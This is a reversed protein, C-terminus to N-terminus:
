PTDGAAPTLDRTQLWTWFEKWSEETVPGDPLPGREQVYAQVVEPRAAAVDRWTHSM